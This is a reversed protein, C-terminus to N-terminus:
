FKERELFEEVSILNISKKRNAEFEKYLELDSKDITMKLEWEGLISDYPKFVGIGWDTDITYFESDDFSKPNSLFCAVLYCNGTWCGDIGITTHEFKPPNCDHLIIIGGINLHNLANQVDKLVQNAEHLGDIFIIDWKSSPTILAFFEDSTLKFLTQGEELTVKQGYQLSTEMEETKSPNPDVATKNKVEIRDFSWGKYYGIELYDKYGNRNILKNIVDWRM